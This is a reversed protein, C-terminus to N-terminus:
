FYIFINLFLYIFVLKSMMIYLSDNKYGDWLRASSLSTLYSVYSQTALFSYPQFIYCHQIEPGLVLIWLWWM